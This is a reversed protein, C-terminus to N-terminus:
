KGEKAKLALDFIGARDIMALTEYFVPLKKGSWTQGNLLKELKAEAGCEVFWDPMGQPLAVAELAELRAKEDATMPEDEKPLDYKALDYSRIISILKTDYDPDTAYKLPGAILAHCAGEATSATRVHDFHPQLLVVAHDEISEVMGHYARFYDKITVPGNGYDEWTVCLVSGATGIGKIGFLNYSEQGTNVDKPTSAGWGTELAAQALTVSAYIGHRRQFEQAAPYVANIFDLQKSM